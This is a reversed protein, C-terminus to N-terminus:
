GTRFARVEVGSGELAERVTKAVAVSGPNDGHVCVSDIDTPLRTGDEAVIAGTEVMALVRRAAEDPDHVLAGPKKRSVLQGDPEYARDAFIEAATALGAARGAKELETTAVALLTLGPDVGKVAAAVADAVTRDASAVNSLAGHAKVHGIRVGALAAVAALAGIQYAVMRTVEAATMPIPRRGFGARDEFGPHAGVAVGNAKAIEVTAAITQPDGAHFGCAVNASTVIRLIAADDGMTWPGFSEGCDANLDVEM